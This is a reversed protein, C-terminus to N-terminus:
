KEKPLLDLLYYDEATQRAFNMNQEKKLSGLPDYMNYQQYNGLEYYNELAASSIQAHPGIEHSPAPQKYTHRGYRLGEYQELNAKLYVAGSIDMEGNNEIIDRTRQMFGVKDDVDVDFLGPYKVKFAGRKNAYLHEQLTDVDLKLSNKIMLIEERASDSAYNYKNLGKYHNYKKLENLNLDMAEIQARKAMILACYFTGAVFRMEQDALYRWWGVIGDGVPFFGSTKVDKLITQQMNYVGMKYAKTVGEIDYKYRVGKSSVMQFGFKVPNGVPVDDFDEILGGYIVRMGEYVKGTIELYNDIDEETPDYTDVSLGAVKGPDVESYYRFVEAKLYFKRAELYVKNMPVVERGVEVLTKVEQLKNMYYINSVLSDMLSLQSRFDGDKSMFHKTIVEFYSKFKEFKFGLKEDDLLEDQSLHGKAVLERNLDVMNIKIKIVKILNNNLESIKDHHIKLYFDMVDVIQEPKMDKLKYVEKVTGDEQKYTAKAVKFGIEKDLSRQKILYFLGKALFDYDLPYKSIDEKEKHMVSLIEKLPGVMKKTKILEDNKINLETELYDAKAKNYALQHELYNLKINARAYFAGIGVSIPLIFGFVFVKGPINIDELKLKSLKSLWDFNFM